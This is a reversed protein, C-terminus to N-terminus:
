CNTFTSYWTIVRRMFAEVSVGLATIILLLEAAQITKRGTELNAVANRSIHLRRALDKQSVDLDRRTGIIVVQIARNWIEGENSDDIYM